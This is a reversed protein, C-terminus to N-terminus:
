RVVTRLTELAACAMARGRTFVRAAFSEEVCLRSRGGNCPASTRADTAAFVVHSFLVSLGALERKMLRSFVAVRGQRILSLMDESSVKLLHVSEPTMPMELVTIKEPDVSLIEARTLFSCKLLLPIAPSEMLEKLHLAQTNVVLALVKKGPMPKLFSLPANNSIGLDVYMKGEVRVPDLVGPLAASAMVVDLLKANPYNSAQFFVVQGMALDVAFCGFRMRRNKALWALTCGKPVGSELLWAEILSRLKRGDLPARGVLIRSLSCAEFFINSWPTRLFKDRIQAVSQGAALLCAILSGASLGYVEEFVSMELVELCGIFSAVKLGGGSLFLTTHDEWM